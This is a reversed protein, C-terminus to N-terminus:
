CDLPEALDPLGTFVPGIRDGDADIGTKIGKTWEWPREINNRQKLDGYKRRKEVLKADDWLSGVEFTVEALTTPSYITFFVFPFGAPFVTRGPSSLKWNMQSEDPWWWSPLSATLPSANPVFMNPPGSLFTCYPEETRIVWGMNFSVMGIISCQAQERGSSSVAGSIVRPVSNGGDWEVVVEDDLSISWGSVNAVTVPMCQYAHKKYTEDMWDRKVGMQKVVPPFQTTKLLTIKSM